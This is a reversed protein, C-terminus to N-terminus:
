KLVSLENKIGIIDFESKTNFPFLNYVECLYGRFDTLFFLFVQTWGLFMNMNLIPLLKELSQGLILFFDAKVHTNPCWLSVIPNVGQPRSLTRSIAHVPVHCYM